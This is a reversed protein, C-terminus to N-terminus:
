GGTLETWVHLLKRDDKSEKSIAVVFDQDWKQFEGAFVKKFLEEYCKMKEALTTSATYRQFTALFERDHRGLYQVAAKEGRWPIGRFSFYATVLEITSYLLRIELARHYLEDGSKFFRTNAIFNYNAKVWDGRSLSDSVVQRPPKAELKNKLTLLLGDPDHEIRGKALWEVFMGDFEEGTVEAKTALENLFDTEFFFIESFRDEIMTYISRLGEPNRDLVIVLDLDSALNMTAATTGTTFIGRVRPSAKLQELLSALSHYEM